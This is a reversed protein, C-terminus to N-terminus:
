LKKCIFKKLEEFNYDADYTDNDHVVISVETKTEDIKRFRFEDNQKIDAPDFNKMKRQEEIPLTITFLHTNEDIRVTNQFKFGPGYYGKPPLGIARREFQEILSDFSKEVVFTGQYKKYKGKGLGLAHLIAGFKGM